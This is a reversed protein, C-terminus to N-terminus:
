PEMLVGAEEGPYQISFSLFKSVLQDLVQPKLSLKRHEAQAASRAKETFTEKKRMTRLHKHKKLSGCCDM